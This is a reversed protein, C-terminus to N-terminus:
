MQSHQTNYIDFKRYKGGLMCTSYVVFRRYKFSMYVKYAYHIFTNFRVYFILEKHLKYEFNALLKYDNEFILFKSRGM